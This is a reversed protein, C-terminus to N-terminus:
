YKIIRRSSIYQGDMSIRVMYMGAKLDKVMLTHNGPSNMIFSQAQRGQSDYLEIFAEGYSDGLIKVNLYDHVPNPFVSIAFHTLVKAQNESGVPSTSVRWEVITQHYTEDEYPRIWSSTDTVSAVVNNLGERLDSVRITVSDVNYAIMTENLHWTRRFTNPEPSTLSLKFVLSDSQLELDSTNPVYGKLPAAKLYINEIVGERCVVCFIEGLYRMLCYQHPRYWSPSEAHPYLGIESDGYWNRWRLNDLNTEKTMNIGEAAYQDGAWYEDALGAFSHGLEHLLIEKSDENLSATAVWGGSGGYTTSNVLMFVQDYEPFNNALVETVRSNNTPVLLRDIGAYGFTSGFYNDILNNPDVAAGTENSPVSISFANFFNRYRSFPDVTHLLSLYEKAYTRFAPLEDEQFGDGLMVLNIHNNVDGHYTITDVLFDQSFLSNQSSILFLFTILVCKCSHKM